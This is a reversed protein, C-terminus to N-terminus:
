RGEMQKEDGYVIAESSLHTRVRCFTITTNYNSTGENSRLLESFFSAPLFMKVEDDLCKTVLTESVSILVM